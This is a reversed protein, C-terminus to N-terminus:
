GQQPLKYFSSCIFNSSYNETQVETFGADRIHTRWDPLHRTRVGATLGFFIYMTRLMIGHWWTRNVFDCALWLSGSLCHKRILRCVGSCTHPDFLDLYFHTIVVEYTSAKPIQSETGHIFSVNQECGSIKSKAMDIMKGAADIYTISCGPKLAVLEALLWGSGGGLILVRSHDNIENLFKTQAQRMSKGFVIRVLRDYLPAIRDFDNM